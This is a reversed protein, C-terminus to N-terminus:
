GSYATLHVGDSEFDPTAFSPMLIIGSENQSFVDSFKKLIQPLSDRYWIPSERYMPPCVLVALEPRSARLAGLKSLLDLLIPEVRLIVNSPGTGSTLFNTVCSVVCVTAEAKVQKVLESLVEHRGCHLVQASTMLPRDRCNMPNMHTKVNSDGLICFMMAM